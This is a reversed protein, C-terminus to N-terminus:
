ITPEITILPVCEISIPNQREDSNWASFSHQAPIGDAVGRSRRAPASCGSGAWRQGPMRAMLASSVPPEPSRAPSAQMWAALGCGSQRWRRWLRMGAAGERAPWRAPPRPWRRDREVPVCAVLSGPRGEQRAAKMCAALGCGQRGRVLPGASVCAPGAAIGSSRIAPSSRGRGEPLRARM